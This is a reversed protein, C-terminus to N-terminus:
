SGDGGELPQFKTCIVGVTEFPFVSVKEVVTALTPKVAPLEIIKAKNVDGSANGVGDGVGVGTTVGVVVGVGFGLPDVLDKVTVDVPVAPTENSVIGPPMPPLMVIGAVVPPEAVTVAVSEAAGGLPTGVTDSTARRGFDIPPVRVGIAYMVMDDEALTEKL